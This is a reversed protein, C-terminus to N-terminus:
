QFPLTRSRELANPRRPTSVSASTKHLSLTRSFPPPPPPAIANSAPTASSSRAPHERGSSGSGFLHVGSFSERSSSPRPPSDPFMEDMGTGHFLIDRNKLGASPPWEPLQRPWINYNVPTTNAPVKPKRSVAESTAASAANSVVSDSVTTALSSLTPVSAQAGNLTYMDDISPAGSVSAVTVSQTYGTHQIRECSGLRKDLAGDEYIAQLNRAHSWPPTGAHLLEERISGKPPAPPLFAPTRRRLRKSPEPVPTELFMSLLSDKSAQGRLGIERNFAAGTARAREIQMVRDNQQTSYPTRKPTTPTLSPSDASFYDSDPPYTYETGSIGATTPRVSKKMSPTSEAEGSFYDSDPRPSHEFQKKLTENAEELQQIIGAAEEIAIQRQQIGEDKIELERVLDDNLVTLEANNVKLTKNEDEQVAAQKSIMDIAEELERNRERLTVSRELEELAADLEARLKSYAQDHLTIRHKLDWNEKLLKDM